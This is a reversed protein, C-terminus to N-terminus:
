RQAASTPASHACVEGGALWPVFRAIHARRPPRATKALDLVLLFPLLLLLARNFSEDAMSYDPGTTFIM